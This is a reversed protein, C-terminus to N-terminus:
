AESECGGTGLLRPPGTSAAAGPAQQEVAASKTLETRHSTRGVGVVDQVFSLNKLEGAQEPAAATFSCHPDYEQLVM